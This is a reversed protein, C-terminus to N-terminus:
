KSGQLYEILSVMVGFSPNLATGNRIRRITEEHVGCRRSVERANRDALADRVQERTMLTM